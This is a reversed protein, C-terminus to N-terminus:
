GVLPKACAPTYSRRCNQPSLFLQVKTTPKTIGGGEGLRRVNSALVSLRLFPSFKGFGSHIDSIRLGISVSLSFDESVASIQLGVSRVQIKPRAVDAAMRCGFYVSRKNNLLANTACDKPIHRPRTECWWAERERTPPPNEENIDSWEM